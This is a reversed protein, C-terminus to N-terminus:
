AEDCHAVCNDLRAHKFLGEGTALKYGHLKESNNGKLWMVTEIGNYKDDTNTYKELIPLIIDKLFKTQAIYANTSWHYDAFDCLYWKYNFEPPKVTTFVDPVKEDPHEIFHVIEPLHIYGNYDYDELKDDSVPIQSRSHLPKGPNKRDRLRVYKVDKEMMLHICDDLVKRTKEEHNVLVFDVEAMIFYPTKVNNVIDIFAELVGVNKSTGLVKTIGYSRAIADDEPTREQFYIMPTVMNLLGNKKYSELTNKLTKPSNWTLIALTIDKMSTRRTNRAGKFVNRQTWFNSYHKIKNESVEDRYEPYQGVIKKGKYEIKGMTVGKEETGVFKFPLKNIYRQSKNRKVMEGLLCPGTVSLMSNKYLKLKCNDLIRNICNKFIPNKPPSVLFGNYLGTNHKCRLNVNDTHNAVVDAIFIENHEEILSILPVATYFKADLYVGGLKYMICYRWLDSKYAGPKLSIYADVVNMDYNERIFELCKEHSFLYHEFEPNMKILRLMCERMKPPVMNTTWSQYIALPVGSFEKKDKHARETFFPMGRLKKRTSGM